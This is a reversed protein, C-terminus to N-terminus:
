EWEKQRHGTASWAQEVRQCAQQVPLERCTADAALRAARPDIVPTHCSRHAIVPRIVPGIVPIVPDIVPDIVPEIVPRQPVEGWAGHGPRPGVSSRVCVRALSRRTAEPMRIYADYIIEWVADGGTNHRPTESHPIHRAIARDSVRYRGTRSTHYTGERREPEVRVRALDRETPSASVRRDTPAHPYWLQLDRLYHLTTTM